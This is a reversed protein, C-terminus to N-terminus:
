FHASSVVAENVDWSSDGGASGDSLVGAGVDNRGVQGGLSVEGGVLDGEGCGGNGVSYVM